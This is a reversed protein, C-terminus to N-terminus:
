LVTAQSTGDAAFFSLRIGTRVQNTAPGTTNVVYGFDYVTSGFQSYQLNQKGMPVTLISTVAGLNIPCSGNVYDSLQVFGGAAPLTPNDMNDYVARIGTNLGTFAANNAYTPVYSPGLNPAWWSVLYYGSSHRLFGNQDTHFEGDRTLLFKASASP